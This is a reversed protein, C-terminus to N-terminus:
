ALEVEIQVHMGLGTGDLQVKRIELHPFHGLCTREIYGIPPAGGELLNAIDQIERSLSNTLDFHKSELLKASYVAFESFLNGLTANLNRIVENNFM